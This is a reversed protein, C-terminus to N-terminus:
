DGDHLLDSKGGGRIGLVAAAQSVFDQPFSLASGLRINV